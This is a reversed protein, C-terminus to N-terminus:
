NDETPINEYLFPHEPYKQQFYSKTNALFDSSYSSDKHYLKLTVNNDIPYTKILSLNNADGNLIKTGLYSIVEQGGNLHTQIPDAVLIYTADFFYNPFGDRKDVHKVGSINYKPYNPLHVNQLVDNNFLTSSSLVYIYDSSTLHSDLYSHLQEIEAIDNRVSPRIVESLGAIYCFNSCSTARMGTFSYVSLTCLFVPPVVCLLKLYKRLTSLHAIFAGICLVFFPVFIYMHQDGLTQIRTFLIFSLIASIIGILGVENLCSKKYKMFSILCGAAVLALFVLGFYQVFLSVQNSFDGLLYASYADGYNGTLYRNFLSPFLIAMGALIIAGSALLKVGLKVIKTVATKTFHYNHIAVIAKVIFISAYLCLAFIAFYRRLVILILTLIGLTFYNSIYQMRTKALLYFILAIVVICIADPRGNIVPILVAPSLMGASFVLPKVWARLHIRSKRFAAQVVKLMILAFPLVYLNLVILVFALRSTGFILQFPLMPVLPLYNYDTELSSIVLKAASIPSSKFTDVLEISNKWYGSTDWSYIANESNVYNAVIINAILAVGLCGVLVVLKHKLSTKEGDEAHSHRNKWDAFKRIPKDFRVLLGKTKRHFKTLTGAIGPHNYFEPYKKLSQDFSLFHKRSKCLEIAIYYQMHCMPIIVRNELYFQRKESLSSRHKSYEKLLRECVTQHSKVNRILSSTQMSQGERELRYQYIMYPYYVATKSSLFCALNYEQDVYFCHEDLKLGFDKLNSTKITTTSLMPGWEAFEADDLNIKEFAKLNTYYTVPRNVNTKIYREMLDTFVIDASESKLHEIYTDFEATDFWDDGDLLRFYKGTASKIASNITSGHGGNPKNIVKVSPCKDAIAESIKLTNDSSGDNVILIELDKIHKSSTISSVTEEIYTEVNYAPIAITLIPKSM